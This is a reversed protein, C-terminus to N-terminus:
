YQAIIKSYKKLNNLSIKSSNPKTTKGINRLLIFNVRDDDNKKDNKVYPILSSISHTKMYKKFTYTLNNKSYIKELDKLTQIKCIKKIVSLRTELIM